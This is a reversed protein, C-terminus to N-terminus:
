SHIGESRVPSLQLPVGALVQFAMAKLVSAPAKTVIDEKVPWLLM